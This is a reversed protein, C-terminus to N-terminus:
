KPKLFLVVRVQNTSKLVNNSCPQVAVDGAKTFPWCYLGDFVVECMTGNDIIDKINAVKYREYCEKEMIGLIIEQLSAM